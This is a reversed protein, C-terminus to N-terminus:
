PRDPPASSRLPSSTASSGSVEQQDRRGGSDEGWPGDSDSDTCAGGESVESMSENELSVHAKFFCCASPTSFNCPEM